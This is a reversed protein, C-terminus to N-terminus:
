KSNKINVIVGFLFNQMMFDIIDIMSNIVFTAEIDFNFLSSISLTVLRSLAM